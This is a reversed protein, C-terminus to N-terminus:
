IRIKNSFAETSDQSIVVFQKNWPTVSYENSIGSLYTTGQKENKMWNNAGTPQLNLFQWDQVATLDQGKVRAIHMKKNVKDNSVGYIYTHGDPSRYSPLLASGWAVGTESPLPDIWIPKRLDSLEFTAVASRVYAFPMATGDNTGRYEQVVIQLHDVGDIKSVMGDGLWYWRNDMTPPLMGKPNAKTGAHITSLSGGADVLFSNNIFKSTTPRTGNANLPGLFTDSFLYLTRGDPLKFSYTSDGGTWGDPTTNAYNNFRGEPAAKAAVEKVEPLSKTQCQGYVVPEAVGSPEIPGRYNSGDPNVVKVYFHDRERLIRQKEFFQGLDNGANRNHQGNIPKVAFHAFGEGGDKAGKSTSAQPYEDCERAGRTYREGFFLRCQSRSKSRNPEINEANTRTLTRGSGVAGPISKQNETLPFTKNPQNQAAWILDASEKTRDDATLNFVEEVLPFVCGYNNSMYSASDCRFTDGAYTASGANGGIKFGFTYTGIKDNGKGGDPSLFNFFAIGNAQWEALTRRAGGLTECDPSEESAVDCSATLEFVDTMRPAARVQPQDLRVTTVINRNDTGNGQDAEGLITM